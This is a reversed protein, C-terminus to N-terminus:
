RRRIKVMDGLTLGESKAKAPKEGSYDSEDFLRIGFMRELRKALDVGLQVEGVEIKHLLSAKEGIKKAFDEQNLGLQERKQRIIASYEPLILPIKEERAKVPRQQPRQQPVAKGFGACKPCVNLLVGEVQVRALSSSAGCLECNM